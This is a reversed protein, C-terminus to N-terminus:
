KNKRGFLNFRKKKKREEQPEQTDQAASEETTAGLLLQNQQALLVQSNQLLSTLQTNQGQLTEIQRLLSEIQKDKEAIQQEFFTPSPQSPQEVQPQIPQFPQEVQSQIPQEVGKLKTQEEQSLAKVSIYKRNDVEILFPKLRNNLQKYVAQKSIGKLAAYDSISILENNHM